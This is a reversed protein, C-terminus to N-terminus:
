PTQTNLPWRNVLRCSMACPTLHISLWLSITGSLLVMLRHKSHNSNLRHMVTALLANPVSIEIITKRMKGDFAKIISSEDLVIGNFDNSHFHHLMEYNAINIGQKVDDHTRCLNVTIGFKLAERVTQKSVALPALILVKNTRKAVQDAWSVQMATKGTGTMTFLAAKGHKCAWTVLDKQYEYLNAPLDSKCIDFGSPETTILKSRLFSDYDSM